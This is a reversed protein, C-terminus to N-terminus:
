AAENNEDQLHHLILLPRILYVLIATAHLKLSWKKGNLM